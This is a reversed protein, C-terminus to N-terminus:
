QFGITRSVQSYKAFSGVVLDLEGVMDVPLFTKMM